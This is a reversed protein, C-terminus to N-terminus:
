ENGARYVELGQPGAVSYPDVRLLRLWAVLYAFAIPVALWAEGLPYTLALAAILGSAILTGRDEIKAKEEPARARRAAVKDALWKFVGGVFIASTTELPLYM